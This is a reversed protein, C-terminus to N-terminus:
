VMSITMIEEIPKLLKIDDTNGNLWAQIYEKTIIAPMRNHIQKIQMNAETTIITFYYKKKGDAQVIGEWLAAMYFLRGNVLSIRYKRKEKDWEYFATAPVLCRNTNVTKFMSKEALSESRANFIVNGSGQLPFGWRLLSVKNEAGVIPVESKPFYDKNFCHEATESGYKKTIEDAINKIEMVDDFSLQFTACMM